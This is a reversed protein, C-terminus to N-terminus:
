LGTSRSTPKVHEIFDRAPLTNLVESPTLAGRRAMMIAYDVADLGTTSHADSSLVFPINRARARPIWEPPLDLRHPDGNLEIAGRSSQLADLIAEVDCDIPDRHLLMRGLAHGWIKFVPVQMARVLRETMQQRDMRMRGHISAIIV